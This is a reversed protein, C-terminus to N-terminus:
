VRGAGWPEATVEGREMPPPHGTAMRGGHATERGCQFGRPLQSVSHGPGASAWHLGTVHLRRIPMGALMSAGSPSRPPTAASYTHMNTYTMLTVMPPRSFACTRHCEEPSIATGTHRAASSRLPLRCIWAAAGPYRTVHLGAWQRRIWVSHTDGSMGILLGPTWTPM